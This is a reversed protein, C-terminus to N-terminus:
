IRRQGSKEKVLEVVADGRAPVTYCHVQVSANSISQVCVPIFVHGSSQKVGHKVYSCEAQGVGM